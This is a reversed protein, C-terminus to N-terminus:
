VVNAFAQNEEENRGQVAINKLSETSALSPEVM